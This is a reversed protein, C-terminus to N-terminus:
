DAIKLTFSFQAGEAENNEAWITGDHAEIITRCISLGLGMGDSKSSLFPDFPSTGKDLQLGTGNDSVSIAVFAPDSDHVYGTIEILPTDKESAAEVGNRILNLIVQRIQLADCWVSPLDDPLSSVIRPVPGEVGVKALSIAQGVLETPSTRRTEFEGRSVFDRLRRVVQGARISQTAGADLAEQAMTVSEANPTELIDRAAEMYNAIATLPQNLEHAMASAMTGATSLRSFNTLEAQMRNIQHDAAQKDTIDRIYGAFLRQGKIHAEGITLHVPIIHGDSLRAEVIRGIGIIQKQGTTLYNSIYSDHHQKDHGAMLQSVNQGVIQQATYGFLIEASQSFAVIIGTEDILILADPVSELITDLLVSLDDVSRAFDNKYM